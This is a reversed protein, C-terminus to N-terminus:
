ASLGLCNALRVLGRRVWAKVTGLPQQLQRALDSHSLGHFFVLALSQRQRADLTALCDDIREARRAYDLLEDSDVSAPPGAADFWTDVDFDTSQAHDREFGDPRSPHIWDFAQNRVIRILWTMAAGKNRDYRAAHRWVSVYSEQLVEEAWDRRKLIRLAMGFLAASTARYLRQFAREDGRATAAILEALQERGAEGPPAHLAPQAGVTGAPLQAASPKM